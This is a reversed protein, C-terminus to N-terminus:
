LKRERLIELKADREALILTQRIEYLIKIDRVGLPDNETKIREIALQLAKARDTIEDFTM